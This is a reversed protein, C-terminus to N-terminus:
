GLRVNPFFIASVCKVVIGRSGLVVLLCLPLRKKTHAFNTGISVANPINPKFSKIKKVKRHTKILM